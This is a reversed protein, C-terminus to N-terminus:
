YYDYADADAYLTGYEPDGDDAEIDAPVGDDPEEIDAYDYSDYESPPKNKRKSRRSALGETEDSDPGALEDFSRDDGGDEFNYSKSPSSPTKDFHWKSFKPMSSAADDDDFSTSVHYGDGHKDSGKKDFKFNKGYGFGDGDKTRFTDQFSDDDDGSRSKKFGQQPFKDSKFFDEVFKKSGAPLLDDSPPAVKTLHVLSGVVVTDNEAALGNTQTAPAKFASAPTKSASAATKPVSTAAM